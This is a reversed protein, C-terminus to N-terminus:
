NNSKLPLDCRARKVLNLARTLAYSGLLGYDNAAQVVAADVLKLQNETYNRKLEDLTIQEAKSLMWSNEAYGLLYVEMLLLHKCAKVLLASHNADGMHSQRVGSTYQGSYRLMRQLQCQGLGRWYARTPNALEAIGGSERIHYEPPACQEAADLYTQAQQGYYQQTIQIVALDECIELLMIGPLAAKKAVELAQEMKEQAQEFLRTAETAQLNRRALM